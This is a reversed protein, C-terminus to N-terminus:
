QSEEDWADTRVKVREGKFHIYKWKKLYRKLVMNKKDLQGLTQFARAIKKVTDEDPKVSLEEMDAFVEIIKDTMNHHDYLSIIRSFLWKSISRTHTHLIMNWLMLAEDVRHDMDFALLLLDYTGM